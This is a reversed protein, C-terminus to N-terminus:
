TSFKPFAAFTRGKEAPLILRYAPHERKRDPNSRKSKEQGGVVYRRGRISITEAEKSVAEPSPGPPVSRRGPEKTM